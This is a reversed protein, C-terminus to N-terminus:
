YTKSILAKAETNERCVPCIGHGRGIRGDPIGLIEAGVAEEMELGCDKRGCWSIRCINSSAKERAEELTDCDIISEDLRKKAINFLNEHIARFLELVTDSVVELPVSRKEATDRRVIVCSNKKLDRPGIEIRLPVGKLEWRYYKAGPREDSSDIKVRIQQYEGTEPNIIVTEFTDSKSITTKLSQSGGFDIKSIVSDSNLTDHLLFDEITSDSDASAGTGSDGKLYDPISDTASTKLSDEPASMEEPNNPNEDYSSIELTDFKVIVTDIFVTDRISQATLLNKEWDVTIRGAKLTMNQYNVQANKYLVTTRKDLDFYISDAKYTIITDIESEKKEITDVAASDTLLTDVALASDAATDALISDELLELGATDLSMEATDSPSVLTDAAPEETRVESSSIDASDIEASDPSVLATDAAPQEAQYKGSEAKRVQYLACDALLFVLALPIIALATKRIIFRFFDM